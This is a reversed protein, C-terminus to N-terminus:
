ELMHDATWLWMNDFYGSAGSTVHMVLAATQCDSNAQGNTLAPCENPTLETGTAGGLRAHCDWLAAAGTEDALINWEILVAGPTPGKATFILDQLEVSGKDGENGVKLM